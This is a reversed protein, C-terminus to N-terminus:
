LESKIGKGKYANVWDKVDQRDRALWASKARIADISQALGQDFGKTSRESFFKQIRELAEQSTFSSTCISVVTGLM